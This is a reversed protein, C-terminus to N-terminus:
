PVSKQLAPTVESFVPVRATWARWKRALWRTSENSAPASISRAVGTPELILLDQYSVAPSRGCWSGPCFSAIRLGREEIWRRLIEGDFGVAAEPVHPNAVLGDAHPHVLDLSALGRQILDKAEATLVFATMVVRGGPALVRGIEDLYHRVEPGPMHTFVSTLFVFDFAEDAYPFVFTEAKLKGPQNYTANYVDVQRFRFHPLQSGLNRSAWDVVPRMIDFGEYRGSANLYYALAYAIRGVGCGVDLVRMDPRLGAREIFHGLMEFAVAHFGGGIAQVHGEPPVPLRPDILRYLGRGSLGGSMPVVWVLVDRGRVRTRGSLRFRCAAGRPLVPLAAAVDPSPLGAVVDLPAMTQGDWHVQFGDIPRGDFAAAWGEIHFGSEDATIIDLHGTSDFPAAPIDTM